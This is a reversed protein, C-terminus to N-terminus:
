RMDAVQSIRREAIREDAREVEAARRDFYLVVDIVGAYLHGVDDDAEALQLASAELLHALDGVGCSEIVVAPVEVRAHGVPVVAVLRAQRNAGGGKVIEFAAIVLRRRDAREDD